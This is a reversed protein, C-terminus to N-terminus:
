DLTGVVKTKSQGSTLPKEMANGEDGRERVGIMEKVANLFQAHFARAKRLSIGFLDAIKQYTVGHMRLRAVDVCISPLNESLMGLSDLEEMYDVYARPDENSASIVDHFTITGNVDDGSNSAEFDLSLGVIGKSQPLKAYAHILAHRLLTLFFTQFSAGDNYDYRSIAVAITDFYIHNLEGSLFSSLMGPYTFSYLCRQREVLRKTLFTLATEDGSRAQLLLSEDSLKRSLTITM